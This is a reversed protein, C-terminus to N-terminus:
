FEGHRARHNALADRMSVGPLQEVFRELEARVFMVRTQKRTQRYPLLGRRVWSRVTRESCGLFSACARVDLLAGSFDRFKPPANEEAKRKPPPKRRPM